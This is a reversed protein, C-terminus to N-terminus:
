KKVLAWASVKGIATVAEAFDQSPGSFIQYSLIGAATEIGTGTCDGTRAQLITSLFVDRPSFLQYKTQESCPGPSVCKGTATPAMVEYVFHDEHVTIGGLPQVGRVYAPEYPSVNVVIHNSSISSIAHALMARAAIAKTSGCWVM